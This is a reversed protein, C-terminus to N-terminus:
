FIMNPLCVIEDKKKWKPLLSGQGCQLFFLTRAGLVRTEKTIFPGKEWSLMSGQERQLLPGMSGPLFLGKNSQLSIGKSGFSCPDKKGKLYLTCTGLFSLVRTRKTIFPGQEGSLLSGQEKQLSHGKSLPSCLGKDGKNYLTNEGLLALM